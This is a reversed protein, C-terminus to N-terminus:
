IRGDRQSTWCQSPRQHCLQGSSVVQPRVTQTRKSGPCLKPGCGAPQQSRYFCFFSGPDARFANTRQRRHHHCFRLHFDAEGQRLSRRSRSFPPKPMSPTSSRRWLLIDAGGEILGHCAEAYAMGFSKLPSAENEPTKSTQLFRPQGIPPDSSEQLGSLDTWRTQTAQRALEAAAKNMAHVHKLSYDEMAISTANFSNTEIIDSGAEVYERHISLIPKPQTLVLLDNCGKLDVPHDRFEDGRYDKEKFRRRQIMTGMAGDLILIRTSLAEKLRAIHSASSM